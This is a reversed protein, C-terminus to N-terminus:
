AHIILEQVSCDFTSFPIETDYSFSYRETLSTDDISQVSKKYLFNVNTFKRYVKVGHENIFVQIINSDKLSSLLKDKEVIKYFLVMDFSIEKKEGNLHMTHLEEIIKGDIIWLMDSGSTSYYTKSNSDTKWDKDFSEFFELQSMDESPIDKIEDLIEDDQLCEIDSWLIKFDDYILNAQENNKIIENVKKIAEAENEAKVILENKTRFLVPIIYDRM